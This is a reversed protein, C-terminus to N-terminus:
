AQPLASLHGRDGFIFLNQFYGGVSENVALGGFDKVFGIKCDLRVSCFKLSYAGLIYLCLWM